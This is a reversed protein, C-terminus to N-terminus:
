EGLGYYRCLLRHFVDSFVADDLPKPLLSFAETALARMRTRQNIDRGTLICPVFRSSVKIIRYADIGSIDPMEIDLVLIHVEVQGAIEIARKGTDAELTRHGEREIRRRLRSRLDADGDMLLVQLSREDHELVNSHM